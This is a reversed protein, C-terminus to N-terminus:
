GEDDSEQLINFAMGACAQEDASAYHTASARSAWEGMNLMGSLGYAGAKHWRRGALFSCPLDEAELVDVGAGRRFAHTTYKAAEEATFGCELLLSQLTNSVSRASMSFLLQSESFNNSSQQEKLAGLWTHWCLLEDKGCVCWRVLTSPRPKGKRVVSNYTLQTRTLDLKSWRCQHLLESPVRAAFIYALNCLTGFEILGKTAALHLVQRWLSLRVRGRPPAKPALRETGKRIQRLLPNQDGVWVLRNQV